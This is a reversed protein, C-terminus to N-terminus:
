ASGYLNSPRVIIFIPTFKLVAQRLMSRQTTAHNRLPISWTNRMDTRICWSDKRIRKGQAVWDAAFFSFNLRIESFFCQMDNNEKSKLPKKPVFGYFLSFDAGKIEIFM